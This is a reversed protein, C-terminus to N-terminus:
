APTPDGFLKLYQELHPEMFQRARNEHVPEFSELSIRDSGIRLKLVVWNGNDTKCLLSQTTTARTTDRTGWGIIAMSQGRWRLEGQILDLTAVYSRVRETLVQQQQQHRATSAAEYVRDKIRRRLRAAATVRRGLVTAIILGAGLMCYWGQTSM